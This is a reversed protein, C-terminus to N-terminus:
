GIKPPQFITKHLGPPVPAKYPTNILQLLNTHFKIASSTECYTEQTLNKQSQGEESKEAEHALKIKKLLYCKGNCHLWPRFRNECLTAAIYKQNLRFGAYIFIRSFSGSIIAIILLAAVLKNKLRM